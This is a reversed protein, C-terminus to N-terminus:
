KMYPSKYGMFFSPEAYPVKSLAGAEPLAFQEQEGAIVGIKLRQYKALVDQRHLGYFAETADKGALELLPFVGGPHLDAFKSVDYVGGDIVIWLDEESAHRAVEDRTFSKLEPM